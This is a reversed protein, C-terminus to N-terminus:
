KIAVWHYKQRIAKGLEDMIELMFTSDCSGGEEIEEGVEFTM